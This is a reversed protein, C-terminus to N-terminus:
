RVKVPIIASVTSGNVSDGMPLLGRQVSNNLWHLYMVLRAGAPSRFILGDFCIRLDEVKLRRIWESPLREPKEYLACCFRADLCVSKRQKLRNLRGDGTITTESPRLMNVLQVEYPDVLTMRGSYINTDLDGDLGLGDSPGRWITVGEKFIKSPDLVLYKSPILLISMNMELKIEFLVVIEEVSHLLSLILGTDLLCSFHKLTM